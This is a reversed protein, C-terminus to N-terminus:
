PIVIEPQGGSSYSSNNLENSEEEMDLDDVWIGMYYSGSPVPNKRYDQYLNFVAASDDNRYIYEGPDLYFNAQERFLYIENGNGPILDQDLILNIHWDKRSTSSRGSNIVEYTLQGTGSDDWEAYWTNVKLDALLPTGSSLSSQELGIIKDDLMVQNDHIRLSFTEQSAFLITQTDATAPIKLVTEDTGQFIVMTGSRFVTFLAASSQMQITNQGPFHILEARAGSELIIRNKGSTGYVLVMTGPYIIADPDNKSLITVPDNHQRSPDIGSKAALDEVTMTLEPSFVTLIYGCFDPEYEYQRRTFPNYLSAHIIYTGSTLVASLPIDSTEAVLTGTDDTVWIYFAQNSYGRNGSITVPGELYATYTDVQTQHTFTGGIDYRDGLYLPDDLVLVQFSRVAAGDHAQASLTIDCFINQQLPTLTLLNGDLSPVLESCSSMATLTVTDGDPDHAEIRLTAPDGMLRDPPDSAIVPPNLGPEPSYPHCQAGQCPRINYYIIHDPEYAHSGALITRDLYYYDDHAGGWGLNVHVRTGTEDDAYGDAVTLHGPLSLLVPRQNDIEDVITAIFDAHDSRMTEIPGYGFAREFAERRFSASTETTNFDAENLIGLDRMLAAVEEQEFGAAGGLAKDPMIDWNFPRNMVATLTQGNWSHSFVGSGADPHAHYRMVQALATQNCGTLTPEDGVMPNFKNYPYTQNWQTTLLHTGQTYASSQMKRGSPGPQTLFDWYPQNTEESGTTSFRHASKVPSEPERHLALENVLFQRYAPPLDGFDSSLSCAKVPVRITDRSVLIYGRPSLHFLYGVMQDAHELPELDALAAHWGQHAIFNRAVTTATESTIQVAFSSRFPLLFLIMTMM